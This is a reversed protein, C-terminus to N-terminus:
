RHKRMAGRHSQKRWSVAPLPDHSLVPGRAGDVAIPLEEVLAGSRLKDHVLAVSADDFGIPGRGVEIPHGNGPQEPRREILMARSIVSHQVIREVDRSNFAEGIAKLHERTLPSAARAPVSQQSM